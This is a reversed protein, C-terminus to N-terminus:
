GLPQAKVAEGAHQLTSRHLGHLLGLVRKPHVVVVLVIGRPIGIGQDKAIVMSAARSESTIEGSTLITRSSTTSDIARLMNDLTTGVILRRKVAADSVECSEM